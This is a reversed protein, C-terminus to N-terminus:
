STAPLIAGSKDAASQYYNEFFVFGSSATALIPTTADLCQIYNGAILGSNTGNTTVLLGTTPNAVSVLNFTNRLVMTNTLVKGATIPVVAGTDTTLTAFYNDTVSVRDNTGVASLLACAVTAHSGIVTNNSLTLGNAANSVGSTTVYVLFNKTASTDRFECGNLCFGRTVTTVTGSTVATAYTRNLAYTGTLGATGTLQGLIVTGPLVSTGAITAGAVLTGSGVATVTLVNTAISATVSAGSLTFLSAVSLFNSIFKFNQFSLNSAGKVAITATDATDLTITPRADGSGMGVITLGSQTLVMGTVSSVTETHNPKAILLDNTTVNGASSMISQAGTISAFPRAFTGRNNDSGNVSDVWFVRGPWSNVVPVGQVVLGGAFGGPFTSMASFSPQAGISM